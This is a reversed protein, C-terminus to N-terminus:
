QNQGLLQNILAIIDRTTSNDLKEFETLGVVSAAYKLSTLTGHTEKAEAFRKM